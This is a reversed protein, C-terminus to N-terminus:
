PRRDPPQRVRVWRVAKADSVAVELETGNLTRLVTGQVPIAGALDLCLGAITSWDDGEPLGLGYDRNLERVPLTGPVTLAGDPERVVDPHAPLSGDQLEGVLEEFLDQLEVAGRTGGSEDIVVALPIREARMRSLLSVALVSGPVFMAPRMLERLTFPRGQLLLGALEKVAVYGVVTDISGEYLLVRDPLERSLRARLEEVSTDVSLALLQTRPRMVDDTELDRLELARSAIDATGGDLDGSRAAEEVLEQLEDPSLRSETFSTKDGFLRLILNSSGTLLWVAPRAVASLWLLPRGFSLAVLEPARLALSKPVLEGLVVSFFTVGVITLAFAITQAWEAVAPITALWLAAREGISDEGYAAAAAGLATIGVQVTALFREPRERLRRVAIAGRRRREILQNLRTKRLSIVAIETAAFLGNAVILSLILIV